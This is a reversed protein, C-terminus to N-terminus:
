ETSSAACATQYARVADRLRDGQPTAPFRTRPGISLVDDRWLGPNRDAAAAFGYLARRVRDSITLDHRAELWAAVLDATAADIESQGVRDNEAPTETAPDTPDEADAALMAHDVRKPEAPATPRPEPRASAQSKRAAAEPGVTPPKTRIDVGIKEALTRFTQGSMGTLSALEPSTAGQRIAKEAAELVPKKDEKIVKAAQKYRAFLKATQPDPEYDSMIAMTESARPWHFAM